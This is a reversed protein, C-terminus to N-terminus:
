KKQFFATVSPWLLIVLFIALTILIIISDVPFFTSNLIALFIGGLTAIIAIMRVLSNGVWLGWSILIGFLGLAIVSPYAAADLTNGLLYHVLYDPPLGSISNIVVAFIQWAGLFFIVIALIKLILPRKPIASQGEEAGERSPMTVM